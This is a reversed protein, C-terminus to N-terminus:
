ECVALVQNFRVAFVCRGEKVFIIHLRVGVRVAAEGDGLLTAQILLALLHKVSSPELVPSLVPKINSLALANGASKDEEGSSVNSRINTLTINIATLREREREGREREVLVVEKGEKRGEERGGETEPM